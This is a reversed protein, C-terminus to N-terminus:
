ILIARTFVFIKSKLSKKKKIDTLLADSEIFLCLVINSNKSAISQELALSPYCCKINNHFM